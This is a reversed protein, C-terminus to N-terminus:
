RRRKVPVPSAVRKRKGSAPAPQATRARLNAVLARRDVGAHAIVQDAGNLLREAERSTLDAVARVREAIAPVRLVYDLASAVGPMALSDVPIHCPTNSKPRACVAARLEDWMGVSTPPPAAAACQAGRATQLSCAMQVLDHLASVSSCMGYEVCMADVLEPNPGLVEAYAMDWDYLWLRAGAVRVLADPSVAYVVDPAAASVLWNSLHNDNHSLGAAHCATLTYAMQFAMSWDDGMDEFVDWLSGLLQPPQVTVLTSVAVDDGYEMLAALRFQRLQRADEEDTLAAAEVYWANVPQDRAWAVSTVLNASQAAAVMPNVVREYVAAEYSVGDPLSEASPEVRVCKAVVPGFPTTAFLMAKDEGKLSVSRVDTISGAWAMKQLPENIKKPATAGPWCRM